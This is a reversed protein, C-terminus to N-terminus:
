VVDPKFECLEIGAEAAVVKSEQDKEYQELYTVKKIGHAALLNMCQVCPLLTIFVEDVEGWMINACFSQEAHIMHKRRTDRDYIWQGIDKSPYNWAKITKRQPVNFGVIGVKMFPDPSNLAAQTAAHMM